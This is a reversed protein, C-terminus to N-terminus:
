NGILQKASSLASDTLEEGSFLKAIELHREDKDLKRAQTYVGDDDELKEVVIHDHANAAIQPLHSIAIIQTNAALHKMFKATKEAIRGSIGTDAEDFIITEVGDKGAILSKIALMIRSLEGGSVIDKLPEKEEGKNTSIYFEVEDIGFENVRFKKLGVTAYLDNDTLSSVIRVEFKSHDMGLDACIADLTHGFKLGTHKREKSITEAKNGLDISLENISRRINQIEFDFNDALEINRKFDDKKSLVEQISGYKKILSRISIIRERIEEIRNPSFELNDKYDSSYRAIESISNLANELEEKFEEFGKEFASVQKLAGFAESLTSYASQDSEYLKDHILNCLQFISESNEIISLEKELDEYEGEQPDVAMIENLQFQWYDINQKIEKENKITRNLEDVKLKLVEFDAKFDNIVNSQFTALDLIHIHQEPDLLDRGAHQSHYDMLKSSIKKIDSTNIQSSNLFARSQGNQTLERRFILDKGDEYFDSDDLLDKIFSIDKMQFVAEIISKKQGRRVFDSSARAGLAINLAGFILSKGSGTEGTIINFGSGFEIELDRIIAFDKITIKKLM